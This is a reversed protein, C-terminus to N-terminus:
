LFINYSINTIILLVECFSRCKQNKHLMHLAPTRATRQAPKGADIHSAPEMRAVRKNSHVDRVVDSWMKEQPPHGTGPWWQAGQERTWRERRHSLCGGEVHEIKGFVGGPEDRHHILNNM